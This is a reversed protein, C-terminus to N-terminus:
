SPRPDRASPAGFLRRHDKRRVGDLRQNTRRRAYDLVEDHLAEGYARSLTSAAPEESVLWLALDTHDYALALGLYRALSRADATAAIRLPDCLYLCHSWVVERRSYLEPWHGAPRRLTRDLDVLVFGREDLHGDLQAFSSQGHYFRQVLVELYVGLVSGRLLREGSRLIELETGQTDLKLFCADSFGHREAAVDLPLTAVSVNREVTFEAALGYRAAVAADPWLLSSMGRHSTVHLSAEAARAAMAERVVTLRRWRPADVARELRHAEDPDPECAVLHAYPALRRWPGHSPGRAGIDILVFGAAILLTDLAGRPEPASEECPVM